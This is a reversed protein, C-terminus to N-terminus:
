HGQRGPREKSQSIGVSGTELADKDFRDLSYIQQRRSLKSLAADHRHQSLFKTKPNTQKKGVCEERKGEGVKVKGESNGATLTQPLNKLM